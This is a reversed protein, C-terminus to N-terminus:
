NEGRISEFGFDGPSALKWKRCGLLDVESVSFVVNEFVTYNMRIHSRIRSSVELM